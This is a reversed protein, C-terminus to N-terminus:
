RFPMLSTVSAGLQLCEGGLGRGWAPCALLCLLIAVSAEIVMLLNEMVVLRRIGVRESLGPVCVEMGLLRNRMAKPGTGSPASPASQGREEALFPAPSGFPQLRKKVKNCGGSDLRPSHGVEHRYRDSALEGDGGVHRNQPLPAAHRARMEAKSPVGGSSGGPGYVRPDETADTFQHDGGSRAAWRAVPRGDVSLLSIARLWGASRSRLARRVLVDTKTTPNCGLDHTVQKSGALAQKGPREM